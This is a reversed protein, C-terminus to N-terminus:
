TSTPKFGIPTDSDKGLHHAHVIFEYRILCLKPSVSWTKIIKAETGRKREEIRHITMWIGLANLEKVSTMEGIFAWRSRQETPRELGLFLRAGEDSIWALFLDKRQPM